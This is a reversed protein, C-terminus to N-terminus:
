DSECEWDSSCDWDEPMQFSSFRTWNSISWNTERINTVGSGDIMNAGWYGSRGEGMDGCMFYTNKNVYFPAVVTFKGEGINDCWIEQYTCCDKGMKFVVADGCSEDYAFFYAKRHFMWSMFHSYNNGLPCDGPEFACLQEWIWPGDGPGVIRHCSWGYESVVICHPWNHKDYYMVLNRWKSGMTFTACTSYDGDGITGMEAHGSEYDYALYCPGLEPHDFCQCTDFGVATEAEGIQEIGSGGECVRYFVFSNCAKDMCMLHPWEDIYYPSIIDFTGFGETAEMVTEMSGGESTLKMDPDSLRNIAMSGSNRDHLIYHSITNKKFPGGTFHCLASNVMAAQQHEGM